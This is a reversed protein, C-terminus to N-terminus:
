GHTPELLGIGIYHVIGRKYSDFRVKMKAGFKTGSLPRHGNDSCWAQYAQYIQNAKAECAKRVICRDNIFHQILDEDAQYDSTALRVVEPPNLGQRQWELCGSVLWALIGPGEARLKEPLDPDKPRENPKFPNDVFSLPFPILAIRKWLAYDEADVKPKHNTMLLLLHSPKFSIERRGYPARGVLTDGGVLAKVRSSDLKRGENTESAWAIRRGRLAMVDASPGASSRARGQDLLMEAQVPAALHGLVEGLIELLTGKGNRGIGHLIPFVHEVVLGTIGYGLLRRLYLAIEEQGDFVSKLFAEWEPAPEDLGRWEVPAVTRIFDEQRGPRFDGTRLEVVGNKCGLLYPAGDWEDGSVGLSRSGATALELVRKKRGLGHLVHIRKRFAEERAEAAKREDENGKKAAANARWAWRLAAIEYEKVIEDIGTLAENLDDRQWYHGAWEYWGAEAHDFVFRERHIQVFLWADGDENADLAREVETHSFRGDGGPEQDAPEPPAAYLPREAEVTDAVRARMEIIREEEISGLKM